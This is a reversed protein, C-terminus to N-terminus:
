NASSLSSSSLSAGDEKYATFLLRDVRRGTWVDGCRAIVYRPTDYSSSCRVPANHVRVYMCVDSLYLYTLLYNNPPAHRVCLADTV